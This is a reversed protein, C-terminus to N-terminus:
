VTLRLRDVQEVVLNAPLVNKAVGIPEGAGIRTCGAPVTKWSLGCKSKPMTGLLEIGLGSFCPADHVLDHRCVTQECACVLNGIADGGQRWEGAPYVRMASVWFSRRKISSPV